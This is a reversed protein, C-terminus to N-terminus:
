LKACPFGINNTDVGVVITSEATATNQPILVSYGACLRQPICFSVTAGNRPKNDGSKNSDSKM